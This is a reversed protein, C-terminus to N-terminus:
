TRAVKVALRVTPRNRSSRVRRYSKRRRRRDRAELSLFRKDLWQWGAYGLLALVVWFILAGTMVM